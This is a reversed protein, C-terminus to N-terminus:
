LFHLPYFSVHNSIRSLSECATCHLHIAWWSCYIYKVRCYSVDKLNIWKMQCQWNHERIQFDNNQLTTSSRDFRLHYITLNIPTHRRTWLYFIPLCLLWVGELGHDLYTGNFNDAGDFILWREGNMVVLDLFPIWWCWWEVLTRWAIYNPNWWLIQEQEGHRNWHRWCWKRKEITIIKRHNSFSIKTLCLLSM